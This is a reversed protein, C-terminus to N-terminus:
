CTGNYVNCHMPFHKEYFLQFSKSDPLVHFVQFAIMVWNATWLFNDGSISCQKLFNCCCWFPNIVLQYLVQYASLSVLQHLVQYTSIWSYQFMSQQQCTGSQSPHQCAPLPPTYLQACPLTMLSLTARGTRGGGWRWREGVRWRWGEGTCVSGERIMDIAVWIWLQVITSGGGVWGIWGKVQLKVGERRGTM